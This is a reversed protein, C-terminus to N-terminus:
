SHSAIQAEICPAPRKAAIRRRARRGFIWMLADRRFDDLADLAVDFFLAAVTTSPANTWRRSADRRVACDQLTRGTAGLAPPVCAARRARRAWRSVAHGRHGDRGAAAGEGTAAGRGGNMHTLALRGAAGGGAGTTRSLALARQASVHRPREAERWRGNDRRGRRGRWRPTRAPVRARGTAAALWGTRAGVGGGCDVTTTGTVASQPAPALGNRGM